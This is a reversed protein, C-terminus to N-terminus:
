RSLTLLLFVLVLHSIHEFNVIFFGSRRSQRQEPKKITLKSCIECRTRTNRNNVKLLYIDAPLIKNLRILSARFASDRKFSLAVKSWFCSQLKNPFFTIHACLQVSSDFFFDISSNLRVAVGDLLLFGKEFLGGDTDRGFFRTVPPPTAIGRRVFFIPYDLYNWLIKLALHCIILVIVSGARRYYILHFYVM